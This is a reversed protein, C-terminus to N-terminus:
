AILKEFKFYFESLKNFFFRIKQVRTLRIVRINVSLFRHADTHDADDTNLAKAQFSISPGLSKTQRFGQGLESLAM